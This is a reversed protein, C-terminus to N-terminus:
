MPIIMATMIGVLAGGLVELPTHGLFEKFPKGPIAEDEHEYDKEKVKEKLKERDLDLEEVLINLMKAHEGAEYRVGTADYIVIVALIFAIAFIPSDAGAVRATAVTLGCVTATHCSPMGGAGILREWQLKRTGVLNVILKTIQAFVWSLLAVLLVYNSFLAQLDEM